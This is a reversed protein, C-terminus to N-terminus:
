LHQQQSLLNHATLLVSFEASHGNCMKHKGQSFSFSYFSFPLHRSSCQCALMPVTGLSLSAMKHSMGNSFFRCSCTALLKTESLPPLHRLAENTGAQPFFYGNFKDQIWELVAHTPVCSLDAGVNNAPIRIVKALHSSIKLIHLSPERGRSRGHCSNSSRGVQSSYDLRHFHKSKLIPFSHQGLNNFRTHATPSEWGFEPRQCGLVICVKWPYVCINPDCLSTTKKM